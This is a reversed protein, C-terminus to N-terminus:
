PSSSSVPKPPDPAPGLDFMARDRAKTLHQALITNLTTRFAADEQAHALVARGAVVLRRSAEAEEKQKIARLKAELKLRQERLSQPAGRPM